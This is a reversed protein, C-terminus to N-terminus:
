IWATALRISISEHRTYCTIHHDVMKYSSAPIWSKKDPMWVMAEEPERYGPAIFPAPPPPPGTWTNDETELPPPPPPPAPFGPPPPPPVFGNPNRMPVEPTYSSGVIQPGMNKMGLAMQVEMTIVVGWQEFCDDCMVSTGEANRFETGIGDEHCQGCM